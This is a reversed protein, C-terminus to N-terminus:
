GIGPQNDRDHSRQSEATMLEQNEELIKKLLLLEDREYRRYKRRTIFESRFQYVMWVLGISFIVFFFVFGWVSDVTLTKWKPPGKKVWDEVFMGILCISIWGCFILCLFNLCLRWASRIAIEKGCSVCKYYMKKGGTHGGNITRIEIKFLFMPTGCEACNRVQESLEQISEDMPVGSSTPFLPFMMM